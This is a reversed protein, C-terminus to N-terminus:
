GISFADGDIRQAFIVIWVIAGAGAAVRAVHDLISTTFHTRGNVGVAFVQLALGTHFTEGSVVSLISFAFM